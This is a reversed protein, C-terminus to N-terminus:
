INCLCYTFQLLGLRSCLFMVLHFLALVIWLCLVLAVVAVKVPCTLSHQSHGLIVSMPHRQGTLESCVELGVHLWLCWLSVVVPTCVGCTGSLLSGAACCSFRWWGACLADSVSPLFHVDWTSLPPRCQGPSEVPVHSGFARLVPLSM